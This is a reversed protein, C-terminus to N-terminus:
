SLHDFGMDAPRVTEGQSMPLGYHLQTLYEGVILLTLDEEMAGFRGRAQMTEAYLVMQQLTAVYTAAWARGHTCFQAAEAPLPSALAARMDDLIPPLAAMHVLLADNEGTNTDEAASM